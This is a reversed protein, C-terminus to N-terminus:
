ELDKIWTQWVRETAKKVGELKQDIYNELKTRVRQEIRAETGEMYKNMDIVKVVLLDLKERPSTDSVQDIASTSM